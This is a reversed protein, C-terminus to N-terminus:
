RSPIKTNTAPPNQATIKEWAPHFLLQAPHSGARLLMAVSLLIAVVLMATCAWNSVGPGCPGVTLNAVPQKHHEIAGLGTPVNRYGFGGMWINALM